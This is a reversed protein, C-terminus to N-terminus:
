GWVLGLGDLAGGSLKLLCDACLNWTSYRLILISERKLVLDALVEVEELRLLARCLSRSSATVQPSHVPCPDHSPLLDHPSSWADQAFYTKSPVQALERDDARSARSSFRFRM